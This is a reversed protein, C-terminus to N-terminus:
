AAVGKGRLGNRARRVAEESPDVTPKSTRARKSKTGRGERELQEYAEALERHLSAIRSLTSM